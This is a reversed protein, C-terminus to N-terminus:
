QHPKKSYVKAIKQLNKTISQLFTKIWYQRIYLCCLVILLLSLLVSALLVIPWPKQHLASIADGFLYVLAALSFIHTVYVLLSHRGILLINEPICRQPIWDSLVLTLCLFALGLMIFILSPPYKSLLFFKVLTHDWEPGQLNGINYWRMLVAGALLFLGLILLAKNASQRTHYKHTYWQGLSFTILMLALWSFVPYNFYVNYSNYFSPQWLTHIPFDLWWIGNPNYKWNYIERFILMAIGMCALIGAPLRRLWHLAIFSVGFAALVSVYFLKQEPYAISWALSVLSLELVILYLGRSLLSSLPSGMNRHRYTNMGIVMASISFFLVTTPIGIMRVIYSYMNEIHNYTGLYGERGYSSSNLISSSHDFIMMIIALSRLLDLNQIRDKQM